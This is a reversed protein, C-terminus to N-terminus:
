IVDYNGQRIQLEVYNRDALIMAIFEDGVTTRDRVHQMLEVPTYAGLGAVELMEDDAMSRLYQEALREKQRSNFIPQSFRVAIRRRATAPGVSEEQEANKRERLMHIYDGLTLERGEPDVSFLDKLHKNSIYIAKVHM